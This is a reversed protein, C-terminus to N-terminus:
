KENLKYRSQTSDCNKVVILPPKRSYQILHFQFPPSFLFNRLLSPSERCRTNDYLIIDIIYKILQQSFAFTKKKNRKSFLKYVKTYM